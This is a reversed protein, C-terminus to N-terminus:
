KTCCNELVKEDQLDLVRYGNFWNRGKGERWGKAVVKRSEVKENQLLYKLFLGVGGGSILM